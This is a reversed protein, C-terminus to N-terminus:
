VLNYAAFADRTPGHELVKVRQLLTLLNVIVPNNTNLGVQCSQIYTDDLVTQIDDANMNLALLIKKDYEKQLDQSLYKKMFEPLLVGIYDQEEPSIGAWIWTFIHAFLTAHRGEDLVHNAMVLQFFEAVQKDKGISILDKTLVHESICVAILEFLSHLHEPLQNKIGSLAQIVTTQIPAALRKVGSIDEVQNIFDLAVYAHYAEDIVVSLADQRLAMPIGMNLQDNAVILAGKNVLETELIAIDYMFRYSTQCLIFSIAQSGLKQVLPHIALPQRAIPFFYSEKQDPTLLRRPRSRISSKRDWNSLSGQYDM